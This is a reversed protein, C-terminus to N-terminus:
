RRWIEPDMGRAPWGALFGPRGRLRPRRRSKILLFRSVRPVRHPELVDCVSSLLPSRRNASTPCSRRRTAASSYRSKRCTSLNTKSRLRGDEVLSMSSSTSRCSTETSRRVLGLGRRSQASRATNAARMRRSGRVNRQWRRAAAARLLAVGRGTDPGDARALSTGGRNHSPSPRDHAVGVTSTIAPSCERRGVMSCGGAPAAGQGAGCAGTPQREDHQPHREARVAMVGSPEETTGQHLEDMGAGLGWRHSVTAITSRYSASPCLAMM